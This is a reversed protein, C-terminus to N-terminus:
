QVGGKGGRFPARGVGGLAGGRQLVVEARRVGPRLGGGRRQVLGRPLDFPLYTEIYKTQELFETRFEPYQNLETTKETRFNRM